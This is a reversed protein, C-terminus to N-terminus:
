CIETWLHHNWQNHGDIGETGPDQQFSVCFTCALTTFYWFGLAVLAFAVLLCAEFICEDLVQISQDAAGFCQLILRFGGSDYNRGRSAKFFLLSDNAFPRNNAILDSPAVQIVHEQDM